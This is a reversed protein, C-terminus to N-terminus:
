GNPGINSARVPSPKWTIECAGTGCRDESKSDAFAAFQVNNQLPQAGNVPKSKPQRTRTTTASTDKCDSDSKRSPIGFSEVNM